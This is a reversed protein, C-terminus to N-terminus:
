NEVEIVRKRSHEPRRKFAARITHKGVTLPLWADHPYAVTALPQGDVIWVIKENWPKVQASLRLSSLETPTDPDWLFRAHAKPSTIRISFIQKRQPRCLPSFRAPLLEM